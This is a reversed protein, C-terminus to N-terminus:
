CAHTRRSLWGTRRRWLSCLLAGATLFGAAWTSPEPAEAIGTVRFNASGPYNSFTSGASSTYYLHGGGYGGSSGSAANNPTHANEYFFYQHGPQLTLSPDFIYSGSSAVTQGLFGPSASSLASPTGAYQISLLFGTGLAYPTTPPVNSFFNLAINLEPSITVTTFSQGLYFSGVM